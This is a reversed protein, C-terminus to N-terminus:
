RDREVDDPCRLRSIARVDSESRHSQARRRRRLRRQIPHKRGFGQVRHHIRRRAPGTPPHLLLRVPRRHQRLHLERRHPQRGHTSLSGNLSIQSDGKEIQAFALTPLLALSVAALATIIRRSSM